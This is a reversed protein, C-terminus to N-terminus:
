VVAKFGIETSVYNEIADLEETTMPIKPFGEIPTKSNGGSGLPALISNVVETLQLNEQKM